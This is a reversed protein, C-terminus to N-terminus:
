WGAGTAARPVNRGPIRRRHLVVGFGASRGARGPRRAASKGQVRLDEDPHDRAPGEPEDSMMGALSAGPQLPGYVVDAIGEALYEESQDEHHDDRQDERRDDETHGLQPIHAPQAADPELGEQEGQDQAAHRHEDTDPQRVDDAGALPKGLRRVPRELRDAARGGRDLLRGLRLRAQM